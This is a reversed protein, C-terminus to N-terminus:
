SDIREILSELAPTLRVSYPEPDKLRKVEEPLMELQQQLKAAVTEIDDPEAKPKGNKFVTELLPQSGNPPAERATGIYDGTFIGNQSTRFVQKPGPLTAKGPSLKRSNRRDYTVLKYVSDLYPADASVVYRTGVGFADIPAGDSVLKAISHEDLGGTAIIKVETLGADDLMRRARRSLADMDGSDLRIANLNHEQARMETGVTIANRIGQEVDYTDVLLTTSKPFESAYARFATLEDEFSQVFSHAMTGTSPIGFRAAARLNSTGSFGAIAACRSALDAAEDGQARRAGFEVLPRDGAAQKIRVAKTLVASQFTVANLLATELIQAEVLPATVELVPEDAFVVSGESVLRVSGSFRFDALAELFDPMLPTTARLYDIDEGTFRASEIHALASDIGAVAYFARDPPYGRFFLSFTATGNM